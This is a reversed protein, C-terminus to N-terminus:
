RRKVCGHGREQAEKGNLLLFSICILVYRDKSMEKADGFRNQTREAAGDRRM